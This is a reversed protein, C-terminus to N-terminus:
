LFHSQFYQFIKLKSSITHFNQMEPVKYINVQKVVLDTEFGTALAIGEIDTLPTYSSNHVFMQIGSSRVMDFFLTMKGSYLELTLANRRGPISTRRIESRVGKKYKSNFQFCNGLNNSYFQEFDSSNCALGNFHCNILMQDLSYSITKSTINETYNLLYGQYRFQYDVLKM